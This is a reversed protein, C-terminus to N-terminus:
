WRRDQYWKEQERWLGRLLHPAGDMRQQNRKTFEGTPDVLDSYTGCNLHAYRDLLNEGFANFGTVRALKSCCDHFSEKIPGFSIDPAVLKGIPLDCSGFPTKTLRSQFEEVRSRVILPDIRMLSTHPRSHTGMGIYPCEFRPIARGSIPAGSFEADFEEVNDLFVVDTDVIWFPESQSKILSDIWEHHTIQSYRLYGFLNYREVSVALQSKLDTDAWQSIVAGHEPSLANGIACIRATPFGVRLTKFVLTSADWLAPNRCTVLVFVNIM